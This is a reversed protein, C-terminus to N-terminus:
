ELKKPVEPLNFKTCENAFDRIPGFEPIVYPFHYPLIQNVATEIFKREHEPPKTDYFIDIHREVEREIRDITRGTSFPHPNFSMCSHITYAITTFFEETPEIHESGSYLTSKCNVVILEGDSYTSVPFEEGNEHDVKFMSISYGERPPNLFSFYYKDFLSDHLVCYDHKVGEETPKRREGPKIEESCSVCNVTTHAM